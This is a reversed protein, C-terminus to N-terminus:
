NYHEGLTEGGWQDCQRCVADPYNERIQRFSPNNWIKAVSLSTANMTKETKWVYCCRSISGNYAIVIDKSLKTCFRRNRPQVESKGFRGKLTHNKYIRVHDALGTVKEFLEASKESEVFSAQIIPKAVKRCKLLMELKSLAARNHISVSVFEFNTLLDVNNENIFHGNTAFQIRAGRNLAYDIFQNFKPHLLSEGRWFPVVIAQRDVCEDILKLWMDEVMYGVPATMYRRPCMDCSLNCDNTLEITVRRPFKNM